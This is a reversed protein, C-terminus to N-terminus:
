TLGTNALHKYFNRNTKQSGPLTEWENVRYYHIPSKLKGAISHMAKTLTVEDPINEEITKIFAVPRQGYEDDNVPVVLAEVVGNIEMLAKEIEEPHINEGGSIFMNDQRGAVTITKDDAITGIDSTHFWGEQDTQPEIKGEMLYGQFLCAGKVVIEGDKLVKLERYPLLKGSNEQIGQIPAPSTAIQSSMETSGYSLYLPIHQRVAEEILSKPASSGGLLVAKMTQLRATSAKDALLRYLQTPVVSLHTLPFNQLSQGLSEDPNGLALAGGSILSRFLLSYGGIHFIPLSLLWCDGAGFPINENSGLASYWHNAFSHVAAKPAGSSASTHIITVPQNMKEVSEDISLAANDPISIPADLATNQSDLDLISSITTTNMGQFPEKASTLVLGPNLKELTKCILHEPFRNNLPAAIIGAKLLGFLLMVLEMSNPSVIAVIEGSRIGRSRLRSAIAGAISNCENFSLTGNARHLAPADGFLYGARTVIDM